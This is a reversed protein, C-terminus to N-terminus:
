RRRLDRGCDHLCFGKGSSTCGCSECADIIVPAASGAHVSANGAKLQGVGYFVKLVHSKFFFFGLVSSRGRAVEIM